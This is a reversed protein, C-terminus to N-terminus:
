IVKLARNKGIYTLFIHLEDFISDLFMWDLSKLRVLVLILFICNMSFLIFKM